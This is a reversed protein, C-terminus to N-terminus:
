MDGVVVTVSGMPASCRACIGCATCACQLQVDFVTVSPVHLRGRVNPPYTAWVLAWRLGWSGAAASSSGFVATITQTFWSFACYIHATLGQPVLNVLLSQCPVGGMGNQLVHMRVCEVPCDPERVLLKTCNDCRDHVLESGCAVGCAM